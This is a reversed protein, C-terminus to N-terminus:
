LTDSIKLCDPITQRMQGTIFKESVIARIGKEIIQFNFDSYGLTEGDVELNIPPRSHIFIRAGRYFKAGPVEYIRDNYLVRFYRFFILPNIKPIITLDFLGDDAVAFPTQSMGGGTYKCIGVSATFLKDSFVREGDVFIDAHHSKYCLAERFASWVYLWHGKYGKEKLRNVRRSVMADYGVGSMNAMYRVQHVKSEYYSVRGIDQLFSHGEVISRVADPYNRPIGYMRIWDNGTGVAIVAILVDATPVRTQIFIGNITEHITGDGGVVILQRYGKNIAYVALETAHFKRETFLADVAIGAEHLLGSIVPWDQLGHGRGAVPNVIAFWRRDIDFETPMEM